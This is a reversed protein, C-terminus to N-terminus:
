HLYDLDREDDGPGRVICYDQEEEGPRVCDIDHYPEEEWSTESGVDYYHQWDGEGWPQGTRVARLLERTGDLIVGMEFCDDLWHEQHDEPRRASEELATRLMRLYPGRAAPYRAVAHHFNLGRWIRNRAGQCAGPVDVQSIIRGSAIMAAMDGPDTEQPAAMPTVRPDVTSLSHWTTLSAGVSRRARESLEPVSGPMNGIEAPDQHITHCLYVYAAFRREAVLQRIPGPQRAAAAMQTVTWRFRKWVPIYFWMQKLPELTAECEHEALFEDWADNLEEVMRDADPRKRASPSPLCLNLIMEEVPPDTEPAGYAFWIPEFASKMRQNPTSWKDRFEQGAEEIARRVQRGLEDLCPRALDLGPWILTQRGDGGDNLELQLGRDAGVRIEAWREPGDRDALIAMRGPAERRFLDLRPAQDKPYGALAYSAIRDRINQAGTM